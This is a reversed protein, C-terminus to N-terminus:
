AVHASGDKPHIILAVTQARDSNVDYASWRTLVLRPHPQKRKGKKGKGPQDAPVADLEDDLPLEVGNAILSIADEPHQPKFTIMKLQYDTNEKAVAKRLTNPTSPGPSAVGGFIRMTPHAALHDRLYRGVARPDDNCESSIEHLDYVGQEDVLCMYAVKENPSLNRKSM